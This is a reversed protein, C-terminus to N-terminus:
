LGNPESFRFYSSYFYLMFRICAMTQNWEFLQLIAGFDLRIVLTDQNSVPEYIHTNASMNM